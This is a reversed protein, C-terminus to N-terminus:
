SHRLENDSSSFSQVVILLKCPLPARNLELQAEPASVNRDTYGDMACQLTADM